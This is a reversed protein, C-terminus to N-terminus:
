ADWDQLVASMQASIYWGPPLTIKSAAHTFPPSPQARAPWVHQRSHSRGPYAVHESLLVIKEPVAAGGASDKGLGTLAGVGVGGDGGGGDGDGGGGGGGGTGGGSSTILRPESQQFPQLEIWPM